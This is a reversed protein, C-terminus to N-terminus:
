YSTVQGGSALVQNARTRLSDCLKALQAAPISNWKETARQKLEDLNAPRPEELAVDQIAPWENEIPNLDPSNGPWLPNTWVETGTEQQFINLMVKVMHHSHGPAGDHMFTIPVDPHFNNENELFEFWTPLVESAYWEGNM